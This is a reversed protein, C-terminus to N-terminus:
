ETRGMSTGKLSKLVEVEGPQGDEEIAAVLYRRGEGPAPTLLGLYKQGLKKAHAEEEERTLKRKSM